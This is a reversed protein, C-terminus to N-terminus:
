QGHAGKILAEEVEDKIGDFTSEHYDFSKQIHRQIDSAVVKEALSINYLRQTNLKKNIDGAPYRCTIFVPIDPGLGLLDLILATVLPYDKSQCEDMADIFIFTPLSRYKLLDLVASKMADAPVQITGSNYKQYLNKLETPNFQIGINVLLSSLLGKYIV